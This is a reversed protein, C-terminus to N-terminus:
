GGRGLLRDLLSRRAAENSAPAAPAAPPPADAPAAPLAAGARLYETTVACAGDAPRHSDVCVEIERMGPPVEFRGRDRAAAPILAGAIPAAAEGGGLGLTRGKDFGVWVVVVYGPTLAAFWADRGGDTTGTKGIVPGAVGARRVARGTGEDVAAALLRRTLFASERSFIAAPKAPEARLVEAGDRGKVGVLVRPARRAGDSLLATYAGAVDLPAAPFAGLAVSPLRTAASWGLAALRAQVASLGVAESVLVAPPNRSGALARRWSIDGEYRGDANEPAWRKGNVRREVPADEIRQLPSAGPDADFAAAYLFPKVLSGVQREAGRARDFGVGAGDRAGVLAAISGDARLVVVAGEVGRLKPNAAELADLGARLADEARAQLIPHIETYVALGQAAVAGAGVTAEVEALAANVADAARRRVPTPHLELPRAKERDAEARGLWGASVMRDLALDRRERARAPHELPDYRNPASVIGALLAAEGLGVRSIDKGFFARAAQDVGSIGVGGVQGLYVENLYLELIEDKTRAYELALAFFAERRKRDLTREQGLFLNKALQQTLTSGGQMPGDSLANHVFARAIGLPDLGEHSYFRADEMALVAHVVAQPVTALRVPRRDEGDARVRALEVPGLRVRGRPSVSEVRGGAFAVHVEEANVRWGPGRAAPVSVVLDAGSLAFDGARAVQAVRSYGARQLLLGLEEPTTSLGAWLEVPGSWVAGAEAWIPGALREEVDILAQRWLVWGVFGGGALLGAVVVAAWLGLARAWGGGSKRASKRAGKRAGAPRRQM